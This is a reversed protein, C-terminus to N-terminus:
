HAPVLRGRESKVIPNGSGYVTLEAEFHNDAVWVNFRGGAFLGEGIGYQRFDGADVEVNGSVVITEEATPEATISVTEANESFSVDYQNGQDTEEYDTEQLSESPFQVDPNNAIRDVVLTYSEGDLQSLDAGHESCGFGVPFTLALLVPFIRNTVYATGFGSSGAHVLSVNPATSSRCTVM